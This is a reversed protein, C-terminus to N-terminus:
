FLIFISLLLGLMSNYLYQNKNCYIDVLTFGTYDKIEKEVDSREIESPSSVCFSTQKNTDDGEQIKVFCCIQGDEKCDNREKPENYGNNGCTNVVKKTSDCNIKLLLCIFIFILKNFSEMKNAILIKKIYKKINFNM